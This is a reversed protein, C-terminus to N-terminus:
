TSQYPISNVPFESGTFTLLLQASTGDKGTLDQGNQLAGLAKDFDFQEYM